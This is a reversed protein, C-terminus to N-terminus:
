HVKTFLFDIRGNRIRSDIDVQIKSTDDRKINKYFKVEVQTGNKLKTGYLNHKIRM